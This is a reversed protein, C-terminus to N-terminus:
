YHSLLTPLAHLVCMRILLDMCINFQFAGHSLHSSHGLRICPIINFHVNSFCLIFTSLSQLQESYPIYLHVKVTGHRLCNTAPRESRLGPSVVPWDMPSTISLTASSYSKARTRRKEGTLRMWDHSCVWIVQPIFLLGTQSRLKSVCDWEM